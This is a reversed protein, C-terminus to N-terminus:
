VSAPSRLRSPTRRLFLHEALLPPRRARLEHGSCLLFAVFTLEHSKQKGTTHRVRPQRLRCVMRRNAEIGVPVSTGRSHGISFRRIRAPATAAPAAESAAAAPASAGADSAAAAPASAAAADSAPAAAQDSSKNCAALAVAALLSAVLLSKKM